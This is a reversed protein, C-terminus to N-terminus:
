DVVKSAAQLVSRLTPWDWQQRTSWVEDVAQGDAARAMSVQTDEKSWGFGGCRGRELLAVHLM